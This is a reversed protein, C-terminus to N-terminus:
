AIRRVPITMALAAGIAAFCAIALFAARFADAIETQVVALRAPPISALAGPGIEVIKAFLRATEIDTAALSGFLVTGVIATGIAAGISRSFQVSAAAAGLQKPGALTQVTTQVVPMATGNTLAILCFLFPLQRLSLQPGFVALSAIATAVVPLGLSPWIATRGTATIARGTCMSGIAIFGTLPLLLFGTESPATGRVVQLYIPLFTILSVLTAGVCAAMADTRWIAPQRLLGIPFLPVPFRREQRILLFLSGAAVAALVFVAPILRVDFRQVQELAILLSCIFAAFLGVGVFDFTFQGSSPLRKPLRLCLFVALAGLPLNILFVSEWGFHQTLWGGAVPGFTSSCVFVSALYGQYKGRQRPPVVEGVLAQSLTMLGGGGAGQLVRFATLALVSTALACLCSAVIFIGLAVFMLKRRGFVDGLRGYVPAAVTTAVLYSVVIWSIREVDGLKGAIAPLATSVITQDVAALFMPLMISPFIAFFLARSDGASAAPAITEAQM